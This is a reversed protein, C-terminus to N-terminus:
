VEVKTFATVFPAYDREKGTWTIEYGQLSASEAGTRSGGGTMDLGNQAGYLIFDGNYLEAIIRQKSKAMESLSKSDLANLGLVTGNLTQAFFATGLKPDANVDEVADGIDIPLSFKFFDGTVTAINTPGDVSITTGDYEQIWLNKIGAVNNKCGSGGFVKGTYNCSM